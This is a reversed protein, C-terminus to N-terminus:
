GLELLMLLWSIQLIWIVLLWQKVWIPWLGVEATEVALVPPLDFSVPAADICRGETYTVSSIGLFCFVSATGGAVAGM